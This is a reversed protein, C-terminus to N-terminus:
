SLQYHNKIIGWTEKATEAFHIVQMDSDDIVGFKLMQDFNIMETWFAKGILIVPFRTVKKTQM